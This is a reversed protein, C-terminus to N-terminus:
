VVSKRDIGCLVTNISETAGSTFVMEDASAGALRAVYYRAEEIADRVERAVGYGSSPNMYKEGFFPLMEALVEETVATTANNDWYIM